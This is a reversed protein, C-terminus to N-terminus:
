AAISKEKGVQIEVEINTYLKDVIGILYDPVDYKSMLVLLLKRDVTDFAKILDLFLVYTDM